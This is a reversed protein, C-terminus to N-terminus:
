SLDVGDIRSLVKELRGKVEEREKELQKLRTTTDALQKEQEKLKQQLAENAQRAREHQSVLEAVKTELLKLSELSMSLMELNIRRVM